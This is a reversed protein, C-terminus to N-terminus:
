KRSRPSRAPKRPSAAADTKPAAPAAPSEVKIAPAAPKGAAEIKAPAEAKAAVKATTAPMEVFRSQAKTASSDAKTLPLRWAQAAYERVARDSSFRGAGALNHVVSRQWEPQERWRADVQEQAALYSPLDALLMYYDRERTLWDRVQEYLRPESPSFRGEAIADLAVRIEANSDYIEFPNHEPQKAAVEAATLGFKFFHDHGAANRLEINAGDLTGITLAGNLAFKMNGTGSAEFGATSIQESLDAAPILLEARSVSYNPIFAVRLRDAVRSDANITRALDSILKIILKARLYAPAAKAAFICVRPPLDAGDLLRQYRVVIQLVNLLQRKYEHLRKAQVDYLATTPVGAALYQQLLPLLRRQNARKIDRLEAHLEADGAFPLLRALENADQVWGTGIRRTIAEALGPNCGMIWRRISVGNTVNCFKGPSLEAFEPLLRQTLLQSHIESVGNVTHSGVLALNTMRVAKVPQEQILSVRGVFQATPNHKQVTQELFRRNIEYVLQMHRPLVREFLYVPWTELVEPLLSHNTFSFLRTTLRWAAEWEMNREDLLIRMLEVVALTPHTDNLHIAVEEPLADPTDHRDDYKRLIDALTCAVFFYQQILRLERGMDTSDSPYLVRTITESLAQERVAEVFGGRNFSELDFTEAAKASWLRLRHVVNNGFGTVPLDYPVGMVQRGAMWVPRYRGDPDRRDVVYGFLRVPTARDPRPLEWPSGFRLWYEPREVQWGQQLTQEFTGFEYRLGYGLVPLDLTAASEVYCAALRGLGGNGLAPEPEADCIEDLNLGAAELERRLDDLIGLALLNARLQRGLLYELSLYYVQRVDARRRPDTDLMRDMVPERVARSLAMYLDHPRADAIDCGQTWLLHERFRRMISAADLKASPRCSSNTQSM